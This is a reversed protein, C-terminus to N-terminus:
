FLDKEALWDSALAEPSAKEDGQNRANLKKLDDTTLAASVANLADKVTDSAKDSNILPLVNQPLIMEEPDELTVFEDIAPDTTFIDALNASGDRLADTALVGGSGGITLFTINAADVGYVNTLGQPGYPRQNFEAGAAVILPVDLGALDALSTVGHEDSFEKTVNYSDKDEAEAQDLVEFGEPLADPLAAFIEESSKADSDEDLFQLLNGSYDPILDISGDELATVYVERQGIPGAFDVTVGNAELAQAYIQAIIESEPFGASGVTITEADGSSENEPALPDGSACATLSLVAGAALIGVTLRGRRSTFM